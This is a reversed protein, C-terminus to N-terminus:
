LPPIENVNAFDSFLQYSQGQTNRGTWRVPPRCVWGGQLDVISITHFYKLCQLFPAKLEVARRITSAAFLHPGKRLQYRFVIHNSMDKHICTMYAHTIYKQIQMQEAFNSLRELFVSMIMIYRYGDM